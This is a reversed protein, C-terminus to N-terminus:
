PPGILIALKKRFSRAQQMLSITNAWEITAITIPNYTDINKTLGFKVANREQAYTGFWRDWVILMNGYNKDIYEPNSGHHVRHHSPTNFIWEIPRWLQKIHQTHGWFGIITLFAGATALMLPHFGILPLVAFFPIKSIPGLWSQRLATSFNLQESSHHISHICWLVRCRHSARHYWYFVFDVAIFIALWSAISPEIKFLSFQYLWFHFAIVFGKTSLTVIINFLLQSLSGLTDAVTYTQHNRWAGYIAELIILLAFIPLAYATEPLM